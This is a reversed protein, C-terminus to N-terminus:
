VVSLERNDVVVRLNNVQPSHLLVGLGAGFLLSKASSM